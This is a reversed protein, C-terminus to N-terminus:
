ASTRLNKTPDSILMVNKSKKYRKKVLKLIFFHTGTAALWGADPQGRTEVSM